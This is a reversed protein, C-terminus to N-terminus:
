LAISLLTARIMANLKENDELNKMQEMRKTYKELDKFVKVTVGTVGDVALTDTIHKVFSAEDLKDSEAYCAVTNGRLTIHGVQYTKDYTTFVMDYLTELGETYAEISTAVEHKLSGFRLFMIMGVASKCAPLCGLVAVITLVNVKTKTTIWGAFFLSLSIAFYLLTRIIEYKKQSRIYDKTGKYKESSFVRMLSM